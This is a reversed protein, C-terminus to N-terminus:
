QRRLDSALSTRAMIFLVIELKSVSESTSCRAFDRDLLALLSFLASRIPIQLNHVAM